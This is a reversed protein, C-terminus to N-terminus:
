PTLLNDSFCYGLNILHIFFTEDLASEEQLMWLRSEFDNNMIVYANYKEQMTLSQWYSKGKM